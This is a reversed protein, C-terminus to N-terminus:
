RIVYRQDELVVIRGSKDVCMVKPRDPLREEMRYQKPIFTKPRRDQRM